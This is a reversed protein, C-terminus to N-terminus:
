LNWKAKLENAEKTWKERYDEFAERRWKDQHDKMAEEALIKALMRYDRIAEAREKAKDTIKTM